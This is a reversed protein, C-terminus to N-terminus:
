VAEQKGQNLKNNNQSINKEPSKSENDNDNDNETTNKTNKDINRKQQKESNKDTINNNIIDIFDSEKKGIFDLGNKWLIKERKEKKFKEHNEVLEGCKKLPYCEGKNIYQKHTKINQTKYKRSKYLIEIKFQSNAYAFLIHCVFLCAKRCVVVASNIACM